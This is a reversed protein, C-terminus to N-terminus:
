KKVKVNTLRVTGSAYDLTQIAGTDTIKATGAPVLEGSGDGTEKLDLLAIALDFGAKSPADPVGAGLHAIPTPAIATVLRGGSISRTYAYKIPTRRGSVEIYGADPMAKLAEVLAATGGKKLAAGAAELEKDNTPRTVVTNVPATVSASSTTKLSATAVFTEGQALLSSGGATFLLGALPAALLVRNTYRM